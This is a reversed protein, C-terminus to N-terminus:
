DEKENDLSIILKKLSDILGGVYACGMFCIISDLEPTLKDITEESIIDGDNLGDIIIQSSVGPYDESKERNSDIETVFAKDAVNLSDIFQEKFDRTRSYTNPAFVVVIRKDPFKQRIGELTAKIETPHHAYDDVITTKGIKQIAFRREANKFTKMSNYIVERDIGINSCMVIAATANLVM